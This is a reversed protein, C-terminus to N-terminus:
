KWIIITCMFYYCVVYISIFIMVYVAIDFKKDIDLEEEVVKLKIKLQGKSFITEGNLAEEFSPLSIKKM